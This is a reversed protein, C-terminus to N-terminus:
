MCPRSSLMSATRWIRPVDGLWTSPTSTESTTEPGMTVGTLEDMKPESAVRHAIRVQVGAQRLGRGRRVTEIRRVPLGDGLFAQDHLVAAVATGPLPTGFPDAVLAMALIEREVLHREDAADVAVFADPVRHM